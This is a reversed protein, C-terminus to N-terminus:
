YELKINIIEADLPIKDLNFSCYLNLSTNDNSAGYIYSIDNDPINESIAQTCNLLTEPYKNFTINSQNNLDEEPRLIIRKTVM